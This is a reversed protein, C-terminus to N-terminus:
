QIVEDARILVSQPITLGLAKATKLNIVLEFKTPQEVPLDAPKAGRLIKDVYLAARRYMALFNPGYSMLGGADVYDRSEYIAPMRMAAAFDVIRRRNEGTLPDALLLLADPRERRITAFVSEFDNPERVQLSRVSVGIKTAAVEVESFRREMGPYGPNWMVAVSRRVHPIAEKLIQLRKASLEPALMSGGTINGGPRAFSAVLGASVPDGTAGFVIPISSTAHAAARIAIETGTVIVDVKLAVLEAALDPLRDLKGQAYREEILINRGEIYGLERLGERFASVMPDSPLGPRLVGIRWVKGALQADAALPATLISLALTALALTLTSRKM